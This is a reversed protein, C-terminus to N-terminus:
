REDERRYYGGFMKKKRYGSSLRKKGVSEKMAPRDRLRPPKPVTPKPAVPPKAGTAPPPRGGAPPSTVPLGAQGRKQQHRKTRWAEWQARNKPKGTMAM